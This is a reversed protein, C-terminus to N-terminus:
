EEWKGAFAFKEQESFEVVFRREGITVAFSRSLLQAYAFVKNIPHAKGRIVNATLEYDANAEFESGGGIPEFLVKRTEM